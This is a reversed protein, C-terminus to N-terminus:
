DIREFLTAIGQGAGICMTALGLRAQRAIMTPFLLMLARLSKRAQRSNGTLSTM